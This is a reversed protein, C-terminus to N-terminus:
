HGAPVRLYSGHAGPCLEFAPLAMRVSAFLPVLACTLVIDALSIREGVLYTRSKLHAELVGLLVSLGQCSEGIIQLCPAGRM